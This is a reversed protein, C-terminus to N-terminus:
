KDIKAFVRKLLYYIITGVASANEDFRYRIGSNANIDAEYQWNFLSRKPDIKINLTKEIQERLDTPFADKRGFLVDPDHKGTKPNIFADLHQESWDIVLERLTNDFENPEGVMYAWDKLKRPQWDHAMDPFKVPGNSTESNGALLDKLEITDGLEENVKITFDSLLNWTDGSILIDNWKLEMPKDGIIIDNFKLAWSCEDLKFDVPHGLITLKTKYKWFVGDGPNDSSFGSLWDDLTTAKPERSMGYKKGISKQTPGKIDVEGYKCRYTPNATKVRKFSNDVKKCNIFGNLFATIVDTWMKDNTMSVGDTGDNRKARAENIILRLM